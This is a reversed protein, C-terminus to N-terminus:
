PRKWLFNPILVAGGIEGKYRLGTPTEEILQTVFQFSPPNTFEDRPETVRFEPGQPTERVFEATCNMRRSNENVAVFTIKTGIPYKM